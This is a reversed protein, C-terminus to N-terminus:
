FLDSLTQGGLTSTLVRAAAFNSCVPRHMEKSYTYSYAQM